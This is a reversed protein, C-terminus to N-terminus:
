SMVEDDDAAAARVVAAEAADLARASLEGHRLEGAVDVEAAIAAVLGDAASRLPSGRGRPSSGRRSRRRM